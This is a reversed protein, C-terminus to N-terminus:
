RWARRRRYGLVLLTLGVLSVTAPEPTTFVNSVSDFYYVGPTPSGGDLISNESLAFTAFGYGQVGFSPPGFFGGTATFPVTVILTPPPSSGVDPLTLVGTFDLSLPCNTSCMFENGTGPPYEFDGAGAGGGITANLSYSGPATCGQYSDCPYSGFAWGGASDGLEFHYGAVSFTAEDGDPGVQATGFLIMAGGQASGVFIAAMLVFVWKRDQTSHRLIM